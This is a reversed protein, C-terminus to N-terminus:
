HCIFKCCDYMRSLKTVDGVSFGSRQGIVDQFAPDRTIITSNGDISYPSIYIIFIYTHTHTKCSLYCRKANEYRFATKDYHMVSDFDYSVRRDDTTVFDYNDFNYALDVLFFLM